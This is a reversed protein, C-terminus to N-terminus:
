IYEHNIEITWSIPNGFQYASEIANTITDIKDTDAFPLTFEFWLNDKNKKNDKYNLDYAKFTINALM